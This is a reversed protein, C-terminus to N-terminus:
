NGQMGAMIQLGDGLIALGVAEKGESVAASVALL